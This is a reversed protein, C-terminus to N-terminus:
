VPHGPDHRHVLDQHRAAVVLDVDAVLDHQQTFLAVVLDGGPLQRPQQARDLVLDGAAHAGPDGAEVTSGIASEPRRLHFFTAAHAAPTVTPVAAPTTAPRASIRRSRPRISGSCPSCSASSGGSSRPGTTEWSPVSSWTRAAPSVWAGATTNAWPNLRSM